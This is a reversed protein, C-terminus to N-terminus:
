WQAPGQRNWTVLSRTTVANYACFWFFVSLLLFIMSRKVDAPMKKAPLQRPKRKRLMRQMDENEVEKMCKNESVTIFLIGASVVMIAVISLAM